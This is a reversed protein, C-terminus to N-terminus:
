PSVRVANWVDLYDRGTKPTPQITCVIGGNQQLERAAKLGPSEIIRERRIKDTDGDPWILASKVNKPFQFGAMGSTSITAVVTEKEGLICRIAFATEVGEALNITETRPGLWVGGGGIPGLAKKPDDVSAKGGDEDLFIRQIGLFSKDSGQVACVLVPLSFGGPYDLCEVFRLTPFNIKIDIGRKRLYTEALTGPIPVGTEWIRFAAGRNGEKRKDDTGKLDPHPRPTPQASTSAVGLFARAEAFAEPYDKPDGTRAYGILSIVDGGVGESHRFWLGRRDGALNVHFSGLDAKSSPEPYATQGRKVWAPFYRDLVDELRDNLRERIDAADTM